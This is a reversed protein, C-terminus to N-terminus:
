DTGRLGPRAARGFAQEFKILADMSGKEPSYYDKVIGYMALAASLDADQLDGYSRVTRAKLHGSVGLREVLQLLQYVSIVQEYTLTSYFM